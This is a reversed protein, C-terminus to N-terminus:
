QSVLSPSPRFRVSIPSGHRTPCMSSCWMRSERRDMVSQQDAPYDHQAFPRGAHCSAGHALMGFRAFRRVRVVYCNDSTGRKLGYEVEFKFRDNCIGRLLTVRETLKLAHVGDVEVDPTKPPAQPVWIGAMLGCARRQQRVASVTVSHVRQEAFIRHKCVVLCLVRGRGPKSFHTPVDFSRHLSVERVSALTTCPM